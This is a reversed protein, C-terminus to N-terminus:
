VCLHRVQGNVPRGKVSGLAQVAQQMTMYQVFVEGENVRTVMVNVVEGFCYLQSGKLWEVVEAASPHRGGWADLTALNGLRIKIAPKPNKM